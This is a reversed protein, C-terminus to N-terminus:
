HVSTAGTDAMPIVQADGANPRSHIQPSLPGQYVVSPHFLQIKKKELSLARQSCKAVQIKRCPTQQAWPILSVQGVEHRLGLPFAVNPCIKIFNPIPPPNHFEKTDQPLAFKPYLLCKGQNKFASVLCAIFIGPAKHSRKGEIQESAQQAKVKLRQLVGARRPNRKKRIDQYCVYM